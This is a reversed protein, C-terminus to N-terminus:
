ALSDLRLGFATQAANMLDDYNDFRLAPDPATMRSVLDSVAWGIGPAARHLPEWDHTKHRLLVEEASGEVAPRGALAHYLTMGLSYVDSRHDGCSEFLEPAAYNWTGAVRREVPTTADVVRKFRGGGRALGFDGLKFGGDSTALLNAPKVDHHVVGARLAARLAVATNILLTFGEAREMPGCALRSHVSEGPVYELVLFPEDGEEYDWVRVINPHNLLAQRRAETRLSDRQSAPITKIAVPVRLTPHVSLYVAGCGGVGLLGKIPYRGLRSGIARYDHHVSAPNLAATIRAIAKPDLFPRADREDLQGNCVLEVVRAAIRDLAGSATLRDLFSEGEQRSEAWQAYALSVGAAHPGASRNLLRLLTADFPEPTPVSRMASVFAVPTGRLTARTTEHKLRLAAAAPALPQPTQLIASAPGIAAGNSKNGADFCPSSKGATGPPAPFLDPGIAAVDM